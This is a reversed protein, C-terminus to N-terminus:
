APPLVTMLRLYAITRDRVQRSLILPQMMEDPTGDPAASVAAFKQWQARAGPLDGSAAAILTECLHHYAPNTGPINEAEASLSGLLDTRGSRIAALILSLRAYSEGPSRVAFARALLQEGRPDGCLASFNGLVALLVPDYPNAEAAHGTHLVGKPCNGSVFYIRAMAFHGYAEKPDSRIAQQALSLANGMAASRGSLPATEVVHFSLLGLRVADLRGDGIPVKLCDSLQSRLAMDQTNLFDLYGLLCPYGPGYVRRSAKTERAAIMGFPGALQVISRGLNDSLPKVSDFSASSSWLLEDSRNDTLRLYLSREGAQPEGLQLALRYSAKGSQSAAAGPEDLLLRVVWSRSISDALKAHVEGAIAQSQTDSASGPRELFLIPREATASVKAAPPAANGWLYYGGALGAILTLLAFLAWPFEPWSRRRGEPQFVPRAEIDQAHSISVTNENAEAPAPFEPVRSSGARTEGPSSILEPYAKARRALRVGYSGGPIYLCMDGVPDHRAYYGELMKRLRLVQVRPYSDINPDFDPTRGLGDVGVVYSKLLEGKGELTQEVLYSLLRELKPAKRFHGCALIAALEARAASVWRPNKNDQGTLAARSAWADDGM